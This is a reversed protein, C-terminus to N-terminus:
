VHIVNFAQELISKKNTSGSSKGGEDGGSAPYVSAAASPPVPTAVMRQVQLAVGVAEWFRDRAARAYQPGARLLACALGATAELHGPRLRLAHEYANIAKHM